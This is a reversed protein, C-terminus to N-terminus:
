EGKKTKIRDERNIYRGRSDIAWLRKIIKSSGSFDSSYGKLFYDLCERYYSQHTSELARQFLHLDVGKHEIETSKAGLGFDIFFLESSPSLILNSTTLDGHILNNKHLVAVDKGLNFVVQQRELSSLKPLLTRLLEGPIFEMYIRTQVLDVLYIYPTHVGLNRAETLLKVEQRTRARRLRTDLASLRYPKSIRDKIIIEQDYWFTKTLTAEAGKAIITNM